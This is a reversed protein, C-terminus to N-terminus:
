PKAGPPAVIHVGVRDGDKTLEVVSAQGAVVAVHEIVIPTAASDLRIALEGEPVSIPDGGVLGRGAIAGTADVVAYPVALAHDIAGRLTAEDRADFFTGGGAAAVKTIAARDAPNTLSFGVVNLTVDLGSARLAAIEAAPDGKCEEQGDTVVILMAPGPTERLDQGAQKISYAIPTTGLARVGKITTTLQKRDLPGFPVVLRSDECAGPQGEPTQQGYVRLAVRTGAPLRGVLDTLVSKATEMMSKTGAPRKMSGSADLVLEVRLPVALRDGIAKVALTGTAVSTRASIAYTAPAHLDESIEGYLRGLQSAEAVYAYRGGSFTAVNSLVRDATTGARAVYNRLGNGLGITYVRVRGTDLAHWLDSPDAVSTTDEGDTMMVIARNGAIPDLVDIAKKIADYISTGGDAYVKDKLAGLLTAPQGSFAPLLVEITNDFRILQVRDSPKIQSLYGRLARELDTMRPEMSGSTDWVVVQASPPQSLQVVLDGPGVIVSFRTRPGAVKSPELEYRTAGTGDLVSVRTRITPQGELGVTLTQKGSATAGAVAFVDRDGEPTIGGGITAEAEIRDAQSPANNPERERRTFTEHGTVAATGSRELSRRRGALISRGGAANAEIARIEGLTVRDGGNNEVIRVKLFRFAKGIPVVVPQKAPPITVVGLLTFGTTPQDSAMLEITRVWTTMNPLPGSYFRMGSTPDIVLHDISAIRHDRFAFTLEQPLQAPAEPPGPRSSWGVQDGVVGDVLEAALSDEAQSTFRILSGGLAPLLLNNEVEAVISTASAAEWIQLEGLQPPANGHTSAIVLKVWRAQTPPFRVLTEGASAPLSAKAVAVFGDSASTTSVLVEVDKPIGASAGLNQDSATDVVVATITAERDQRFGVVVDQPFTPSESVWGNSTEIAALGRIVPFGDLLNSVRVLHDASDAPRVVHGGLAALAINAGLTADDPAPRPDPTMGTATVGTAGAGTASPSGATTSTASGTVSGPASSGGSPAAATGSGGSAPRADHGCAGILAALSCVLHRM